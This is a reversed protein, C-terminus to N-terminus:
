PLSTTKVNDLVWQAAKFIAEPETKEKFVEDVKLGKIADARGKGCYPYSQIMIGYTSYAWEKCKNALEYINIEKEIATFDDYYIRSNEFTVNSVNIGTVKIFLEKSIMIKKEKNQELLWECAKFIAEPENQDEFETIFYTDSTDANKDYISCEFIMDGNDESITGSLLEYGNVFAWIKCLNSLEYVNIKDHTIYNYPNGAVDSTYEIYHKNLVLRTIEIQDKYKEKHFLVEKLM